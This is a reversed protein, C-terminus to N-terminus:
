AGVGLGLLDTFQQSNFSFGLSGTIADNLDKVEAATLEQAELQAELIGNQVGAIQEAIQTALKEGEEGGLERAAALQAQLASEEAQLTPIINSKIYTARAEKGAVTENTGAIQQELELHQLGLDAMNHAFAAQEVAHEAALLIAKIHDTITTTVDELMAQLRKLKNREKKTVGGKKVQAIQQEIQQQQADLQGVSLSQIANHFTVLPKRVERAVRSKARSMAVKGRAREIGEREVKTISKGGPSKKSTARSILRKVTEAQEDILAKLRLLVQGLQKYNMAELVPIWKKFKDTPVKGLAEVAGKLAKEAVKWSPNKEFKEWNFLETPAFGYKTFPFANSATGFQRNIGRAAATPARSFPASPPLVSLELSPHFPAIAVKEKAHSSTTGLVVVANSLGIVARAAEDSARALMSSTSNTSTMTRSHAPIVGGGAFARRSSRGRSGSRGLIGGRALGFKRMTALARGKQLLYNARGENGQGVGSKQVLQAIANAPLGTSRALPIAATGTWTPSGTLFGSIEQAAPRIRTYPPLAQLVNGPAAAGMSSEAWLAEFLALAARPPANTRKVIQAAQSAVSGSIGALNVAGAGIGGVSKHGLYKNAAKATLRMSAQALNQTFGRGKVGPIRIRPVEGAGLGGTGGARGLAGAIAGAIAIHIHDEHEAQLGPESFASGYHYLGGHPVGLPMFLEAASKRIPWVVNALKSLNNVSNGYDLADGKYHYSNPAHVGDMGSTIEFGMQSLKVELGHIPSNVPPLVVGPTKLIGGGAYRQIASVLNASGRAMFHPTSFSGFFDEMGGLGPFTNAVAMDLLPKQHRNAVMMTEGPAVMAAIDGHTVPVTDHLGQGGVNWMAGQAAYWPKKGTTGFGGRDGGGGGKGPPDLKVKLPPADLGKLSKNTEGLIYSLGGHVAASSSEMSSRISRLFAGGKTAATGAVETLSSRTDRQMRDTNNKVSERAQGFDNQVNHRVKDSNSSAQNSWDESSTKVKRQIGDASKKVSDATDKWNKRVKKHANDNPDPGGRGQLGGVLHPEVSTNSGFVAGAADSAANGVASAAGGIVGAGFGLADRVPGPLEDYIGKAFEKAFNKGAEYIKSALKGIADIIRGPLKAVFHVIGVAGGRLGDFLKSMVMSGFGFLKGPLVKMAHLVRGPLSAWFSAMAKWGNWWAKVLFEIASLGWKFLKPGFAVLIDKVRGVMRIYVVAIRFPLSIFFGVFKGLLEPTSKLANWMLNPLDKIGSVIRGPLKEFFDVINNAANVIWDFAGVFAAAIQKRFKVAVLVLLPLPGFMVSLAGAVLLAHSKVFDVLWSFAEGVQKRFTLLLGLAAGIAAGWPGFAMGAMAGGAINGVGEGLKGGVMSGGVIAATGAVGGAVALKPSRIAGRLAGGARSFIGSRSAAGAEGEVTTAATGIPLSLQNPNIKSGKGPAFPAMGGVMENVVFVYLPKEPTVGPEAFTVKAANIGAAIGAKSGVRGEAGSAAMSAARVDRLKGILASIGSIASVFSIARSALSIGIIISLLQKMGPVYQVISAFADVIRATVNLMTTLPHGLANFLHLVSTLLDLIGPGFASSFGEAVELIAPLLEVRMQRILPALGSTTGMKALGKVLDAFLRGAEFLAPKIRKFFEEIANKGKASETWDRFRRAARDFARFMSDGLPKSIHLINNLAVFLNKAIDVLLKIIEKTEGFKKSLKGSVRDAQMASSFFDAWHKILRALWTTLPRAAVAVQMMGRAVSIAARGLIHLVRTNNETVKELQKGFGKSGILRGAEIALNGFMSGTRSMARNLIPFSNSAKLIGQELKPLFATQSAKELNSIPGQIFKAMFIAFHKAAPSLQALDYRLNVLQSAQHSAAMTGQKHANAVQELARHVGTEAKAVGRAADAEALKADNLAKQAAIVNPLKKIGGQKAHESESQARQAAIQAEKAGQRAQSVALRAQEVEIMTAHPDLETKRLDSIAQRLTLGAQQQGLAADIAANKLDIMERKGNSIARNLENQAQEVDNQSQVLTRNAEATQLTADHVAQQASKIAKSAAFLRKEATQEQTAASKWMTIYDTVAQKVPALSGYLTGFAQALGLVGGPLTGILGGLPELAGVLSTIGGAGAAAAQALTTFAAVLAPIVLNRISQRLRTLHLNTNRIHNDFAAGARWARTQEFGFKRMEERAEKSARKQNDLSRVVRKSSRESDGAVRSFAASQRSASSSAANQTDRVSKRIAADSALVQRSARDTATLIYRIWNTRDM